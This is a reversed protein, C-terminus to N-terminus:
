DVQNDVRFDTHYNSHYDTPCDLHNATYQVAQCARFSDLRDQTAGNARNSSCLVLKASEGTYFGNLSPPFAKYTPPIIFRLPEADSDICGLFDLDIHIDQVGVKTDNVM